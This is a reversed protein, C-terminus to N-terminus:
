LRFSCLSLRRRRAARLRGSVVNYLLFLLLGLL